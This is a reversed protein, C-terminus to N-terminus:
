INAVEFLYRDWRSNNAILDVVQFLAGFNLSLHIACRDKGDFQRLKELEHHDANICSGLIHTPARGRFNSLKFSTRTEFHWRKYFYAVNNLNVRFRFLID